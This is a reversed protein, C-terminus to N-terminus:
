IIKFQLGLCSAYLQVLSEKLQLSWGVSSQAYLDILKQAIKRANKPAILETKNELIIDNIFNVACSKTVQDHGKFMLNLVDTLIKDLIPENM